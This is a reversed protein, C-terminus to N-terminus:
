ILLSVPGTFIKEDFLCALLDSPDSVFDGKSTKADKGGRAKVDLIAVDTEDEEMQEDNKVYLSRNRKAALHLIERRRYRQHLPHLDSLEQLELEVSEQYQKFNWLHNVLPELIIVNTACLLNLGSSQAESHLLLFTRQLTSELGKVAKGAQKGGGELRVFPIANRKLAEGVFDLGRSFSSFILTKDDSTREITGTNIQDTCIFCTRAEENKEEMANAKELEVLYRSKEEKKGINRMITIKVLMARLDKEVDASTVDSVQDSLEQISKFYAARANFLNTLLTVEKRLKGLALNQDKILDRASSIGRRAFQAEREGYREAVEKLKLVVGEVSLEGEKLKFKNRLRDLKKFHDLQQKVLKEGEDDEEGEQLSVQLRQRKINAMQHELSVYLSPKSTAGVSTTGAIIKEREALLVRFMELVTEAEVQADLNEQYQDDEENEQSVDRNVVLRLNKIIVGRWDLILKANNLLLRQRLTLLIKSRNGVTSEKDIKMEDENEIGGEEERKSRQLEEKEKLEQEGKQFYVNGLFQHLRHLQEVWERQRNKLASVRIRRATKSRNTSTEEESDEEEDDDDDQDRLKGEAEMESTFDYTPGKIRARKIVGDIKEKKTGLFLLARHIKKRVLLIRDNNMEAIVSELMTSLVEDISRLNSHAEGLRGGLARGVVQPHTCAQRLRTLHNSLLAPNFQHGPPLYGTEDCGAESHFNRLMDQYFVLEIGTFDLSILQKVQPPITLESQVQSKTTRTALIQLVSILTPAMMPQLLRRFGANSIPVRLFDFTGQLDTAQKVLTGSVAISSRRPIMSVTQAAGSNPGLVQVEDM